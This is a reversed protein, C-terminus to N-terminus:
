NSENQTKQNNTNTLHVSANNSIYFTKVHLFINTEFFIELGHWNSDCKMDENLNIANSYICM